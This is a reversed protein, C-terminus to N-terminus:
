FEAKKGFEAAIERAEALVEEETKGAIHKNVEVMGSAGTKGEGKVKGVARYGEEASM